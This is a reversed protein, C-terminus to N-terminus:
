YFRAAPSQFIDLIQFPVSFLRYLASRTDSKHSFFSTFSKKSPSSPTWNWSFRSHTTFETRITSHSLFEHIRTFILSSFWQFHFSFLCLIRNNSNPIDIKLQHNELSSLHLYKREILMRTKLLAADSDFLFSCIWILLLLFVRWIKLITSSLLQQGRKFHKLIKSFYVSVLIIQNNSKLFSNWFTWINFTLNDNM